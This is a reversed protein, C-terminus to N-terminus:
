WELNHYESFTLGDEDPQMDDYELDPHRSSESQKRTKPPKYFKESQPYELWDELPQRLFRVRKQVVCIKNSIEVLLFMEFNQM